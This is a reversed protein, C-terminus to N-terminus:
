GKTFCKAVGQGIGEVIKGHNNANILYAEDGGNSLFGMELLVVPVRSWNFGTMNDSVVLGRNNIPNNSTYSNLITQGYKSSTQAIDSTYQNNAAPVLMSAGKASSNDYSDAHIRIVIDANANNGVEARAINGISQNIDSKTMIVTFGRKELDVKLLDAIQQNLLYEGYGANTSFAGSVDKAKMISSGPAQPETGQAPNLSHGPDIVIVRGTKTAKIETKAVSSEQAKQEEGQKNQVTEKIEDVAKNISNSQDGLAKGLSLTTENKQAVVFNEVKVQSKNFFLLIVSFIIGIVGLTVIAIKKNSKNKRM